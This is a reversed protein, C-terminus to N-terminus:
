NKVAKRGPMRAEAVIRANKPNTGEVHPVVYFPVAGFRTKRDEIMGLLVQGLPKPVQAMATDFMQQTAAAQADKKAVMIPLNWCVAALMMISRIDQIDPPGAPDFGLLPQAFELIMESVKGSEPKGDGDLPIKYLGPVSM